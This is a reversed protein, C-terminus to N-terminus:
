GELQCGHYNENLTEAAIIGIVTWTKKINKTLSHGISLDISRIKNKLYKWIQFSTALFIDCYLTVCDITISQSIRYRQKSLVIANDTIKTEAKHPRSIKYIMFLKM